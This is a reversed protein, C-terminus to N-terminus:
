RDEVEHPEAKLCSFVLDAKYQATADATAWLQAEHSSQMWVRHLNGDLM